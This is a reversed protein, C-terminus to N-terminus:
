IHINCMRRSSWVLLVNWVYVRINQVSSAIFETLQAALYDSDSVIKYMINCALKHCSRSQFVSMANRKGDEYM